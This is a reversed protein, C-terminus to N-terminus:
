RCVARLFIQRVAGQRYLPYRIVQFCVSKINRLKTSGCAFFEAIECWVCSIRCMGVLGTDYIIGNVAIDGLGM